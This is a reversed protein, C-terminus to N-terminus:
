TEVRKYLVEEWGHGISVSAHPMGLKAECYPCGVWDNVTIAQNKTVKRRGQHSYPCERDSSMPSKWVIEWGEPSEEDAMGIPALVIRREDQANHTHVRYWYKFNGWPEAELTESEVGYVWELQTRFFETHGKWIM